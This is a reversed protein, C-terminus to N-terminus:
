DMNCVTQTRANVIVRCLCVGARKASIVRRAKHATARIRKKPPKPLFINYRAVSTEMKRAVRTKRAAKVM